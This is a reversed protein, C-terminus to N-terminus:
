GALWHALWDALLGAMHDTVLSKVNGRLLVCCFRVDWSGLEIISNSYHFKRIGIMKASSPAYRAAEDDNDDVEDSSDGEEEQM